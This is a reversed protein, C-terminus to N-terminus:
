ASCPSVHLQSQLVHVCADGGPVAITGLPWSYRAIYVFPCAATSSVMTCWTVHKQPMAFRQMHQLIVESMYLCSKTAHAAVYLTHCTVYATYLVQVAMGVLTKHMYINRDRWAALWARKDDKPGRLTSVACACVCVELLLNGAILQFCHMGSADFWPLDAHAMSTAAQGTHYRLVTLTTSFLVCGSDTSIDYTTLQVHASLM